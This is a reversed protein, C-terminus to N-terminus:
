SGAPMEYLPMDGKVRAPMESPPINETMGAPMESPSSNGKAFQPVKGYMQSETAAGGQQKAREKSRWRSVLYGLAILVLGGLVAAIIIGAKAGGSLTSGTPSNAMGTGAVPQGTTGSSGTQPTTTPVISPTTSPTNLAVSTTTSWAPDTSARAIAIGEAFVVQGSTVTTVISGVVTSSGFFTSSITLTTQAPFVQYCAYIEELTGAGRGTGCTYSSPCCTAVTSGVVGNKTTPLVTCAYDYGSPCIGPSYFYQPERNYGSPLCFNADQALALWNAGANVANVISTCTPLSPTFTTTLPGINTSVNSSM